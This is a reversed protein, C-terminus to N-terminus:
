FTTPELGIMELFFTIFLCAYCELSIRSGVLATLASRFPPDAFLINAVAFAAPGCPTSVVDVVSPTPELGIMELFFTIFLCAYCELSIRSGVLATLASRFPPDAFLINAVAFAAPGCPTSVVDVVSPTPELGIM